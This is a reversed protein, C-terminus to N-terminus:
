VDSKAINTMPRPVYYGPYKGVAIAGSRVAAEIIKPIRESPVKQKLFDWLIAEPMDKRDRPMVMSWEKYLHYHLDDIVQSDSKAGMARFIDPMLVEASLLWTKARDVDEPLVILKPGRSIASIMSLKMVNLVRRGNYHQLKNHEPVPPAGAYHWALLEDAAEKHWQFQGYLNFVTNLEEGLENFYDHGNIHEFLNTPPPSTGYIMILRSAFGMGWAQEPMFTGLYDPQTGALITLHPRVAERVGASVREEKYSPPDDFIYNLVSIFELDHNTFFVGFEPVCVNLACFPDELAGTEENFIMRLSKSLSEILIPKTVNDPAIQLKNVKSWIARVPNIAVNKGSAPPGVLLTYIGPFLPGNRTITWVRRELAGSIATIAAWLRFQEPSSTGETAALFKEIWDM